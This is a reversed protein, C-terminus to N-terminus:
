FQKFFNWTSDDVWTKSQGGPSPDHSGVFICAKCPYHSDCGKYDVCVPTLGSQDTPKCTSPIDIATCGDRQAIDKIQPVGYNPYTCVNDKTGHTIFMAVPGRNKQDCGSM